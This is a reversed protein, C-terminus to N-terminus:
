PNLVAVQRSPEHLYHALALYYIGTAEMVFRGHARCAQVFQQFGAATNNVELHQVQPDRLYCVALSANSVDIGVVPLPLSADM